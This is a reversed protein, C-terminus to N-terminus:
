VDPVHGQAHVAGAADNNMGIAIKLTSGGDPASNAFNSQAFTILKALSSVIGIVSAM